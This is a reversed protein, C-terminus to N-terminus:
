GFIEAVVAVFWRKAAVTGAAVAGLAIPQELTKATV